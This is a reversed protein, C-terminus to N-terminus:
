LDKVAGMELLAFELTADDIGGADVAFAAIVVGASAPLTVDRSSRMM